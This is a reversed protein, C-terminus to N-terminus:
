VWYKYLYMTRSIMCVNFTVHLHVEFSLKDIIM